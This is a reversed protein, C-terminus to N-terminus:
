GTEKLMRNLYVTMAAFVIVALVVSLAAAGGLNQDVFALAYAEYPLTTTLFGPGGQTLIQILAFANLTFIFALISTVTLVQRLSPVTIDRVIRWGNAGDVRAAEYLDGPISQLGATLFLMWFPFGEWINLVIMSPMALHPNTLWAVNRGVLADGLGIIPDYIWAWIVAVAVPPVLWPTMLATRILKSGTFDRRLALACAFGIIFQGIMSGGVWFVTNLALSGVDFASTLSRYNALGVFPHAQIYVVNRHLSLEVVYILPYGLFIGLAGISPAMLVWPQM